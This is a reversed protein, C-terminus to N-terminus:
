LCYQNALCDSLNGVVSVITLNLTKDLINTKHATIGPHYLSAESENRHKTHEWM